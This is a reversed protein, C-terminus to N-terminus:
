PLQQLCAMARLIGREPWKSHLRSIEGVVIVLFNGKTMTRETSFSRSLETRVASM